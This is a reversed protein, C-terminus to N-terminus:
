SKTEERKKPQMSPMTPPKSFKPTKLKVLLPELKSLLDQVKKKIGIDRVGWSWGRGDLSIKKINLKLKINSRM